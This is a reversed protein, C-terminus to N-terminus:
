RARLQVRVTTPMSARLSIESEFKKHDPHSVALLHSGEPLRGCFQGQGVERGDVAILADPQSAEVVLSVSDPALTVETSMPRGEKLDVVRTEPTFGASRIEVNHPGPNFEGNYSGVSLVGDITVAVSRADGPPQVSLRLKGAPAPSAQIKFVIGPPAPGETCAHQPWRPPTACGALLLAASAALAPWINRPRM